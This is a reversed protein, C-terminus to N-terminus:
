VQHVQTLGLKTIRGTCAASGPLQEAAQEDEPAQMVLLRGDCGSRTVHAEPLVM